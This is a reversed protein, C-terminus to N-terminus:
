KQRLAKQGHCGVITCSRIIFEDSIHRIHPTERKCEDCWFLPAKDLKAFHQRAIELFTKGFNEKPENGDNFAAM